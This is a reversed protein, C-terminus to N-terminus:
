RDIRPVAECRCSLARSVALEALWDRPRCRCVPPGFLCSLPADGMAAAPKVGCLGPCSTAILRWRWVVSGLKAGVDSPLGPDDQAMRAWTGPEPPKHHHRIETRYYGRERAAASPGTGPKPVVRLGRPPLRIYRSALDPCRTASVAASLRVVPALM